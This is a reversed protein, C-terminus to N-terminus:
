GCKNLFHLLALILVPARDDGIVFGQLLLEARLVFLHDFFPVLMFLLTLLVCLVEVLPVLATHRKKLLGARRRGQIASRPATAVRWRRARVVVEPQVIFSAALINHVDAARLLAATLLRDVHICIVSEVRGHRRRWARDARVDVGGTAGRLTIVNGTLMRCVVMDVM